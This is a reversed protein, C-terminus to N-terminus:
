VFIFDGWDGTTDGVVKLVNIPVSKIYLVWLRDVFLQSASPQLANYICAKYHIQDESELPLQSGRKKM